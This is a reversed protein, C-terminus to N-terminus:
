TNRNTQCDQIEMKKFELKKEEQAMRQFISPTIGTISKFVNTFTTTSKYGLSEAIAKITYHGYNDLDTLRIRAERIRFENIYTNFNKHYVENIVQSVYKSNSNVLTALKNLSFDDNCFEYTNEMIQNISDLLLQKQQDTLTNAQYKLSTEASKTNLADDESLIDKEQKQDKPSMIPVTHLKEEYQQRLKKNDDNSAMIEQNIHYLKKYAQSLARKQKYTVLLFVSILLFGFLFGLLGLSQRKLEKKEKEGYLISFQKNTTEMEHIAQMSKVRNFERTNFISDSLSLYEGKYLLSKQPNDLKNYLTSYAKISQVLIDTLKYEQALKYCKNLYYLTSDNNNMLLYTKYLEEYSSCEYRPSMQYKDAFQLSQQFSHVADSYKKENIYILGKNLLNIYNKLTDTSNTLQKSLQYYKKAESVNGLYNYAGTLNTYLNYEKEKNPHLQYLKHARKYYSIGTEYDFFTCYVSGIKLYINPIIQPANCSECIKLGQIYCDFAKTYNGQLYYADGTRLFSTISLQKEEENMKDHYRQNAITYYVIASDSELPYCDGQQIIESTSLVNAQQFFTEKNNQSFVSLHISVFLTIIPFIKM